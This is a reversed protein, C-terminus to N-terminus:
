FCCLYLCKNIVEAKGVHQIPTRLYEACLLKEPLWAPPSTKVGAEVMVAVLSYFAALDRVPLSISWCSNICM